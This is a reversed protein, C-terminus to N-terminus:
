HIVDLFLVDGYCSTVEIKYNENVRRFNLNHDYDVIVSKLEGNSKSKNKELLNMLLKEFEIIFKNNYNAIKAKFDDTISIAGHQTLQIAKQKYEYDDRCILQELNLQRAISINIDSDDGRLLIPKNCNLSEFLIAWSTNFTGLIVDARAILGLYKAYTKVKGIIIVRDKSIGGAQLRAEFDSRVKGDDLVISQVIIKARDVLRLIDAWVAIDENSIRKIDGIHAYYIEEKNDHIEDHEFKVIDEELKLFPIYKDLSAENFDPYEKINKFSINYTYISSYIPYDFGFWKLTIPAPKLQFIGNKNRPLFGNLDILIDINDNKISECIKVESLGFTSRWNVQRKVVNSLKDDGINDSYIFIDFKDKNHLEILQKIVAGKKGRKVDISVYGIKPKLCTDTKLYTEERYKKIAFQKSYMECIENIMRSSNLKNNEKVYLNNILANQKANISKPNLEIAKKYWTAAAEVEGIASLLNAYNNFIIDQTDSIFQVKLLSKYYDIGQSYKRASYYCTGRNIMTCEDFLMEKEIKNYIELCEEFERLQQFLVALNNYIKLKLENNLENIRLCRDYNDRAKELEGKLHYVLALNFIDNVGAQYINKSLYYQLADDLYGKYILKIGENNDLDNNM